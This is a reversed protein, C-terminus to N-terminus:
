PKTAPKDTIEFEVPETTIPGAWYRVAPKPDNGANASQDMKVVLLYKGPKLPHQKGDSMKVQEQYANTLIRAVGTLDTEELVIPVTLVKGPDLQVARLELTGAQDFGFEGWNEQGQKKFRLQWDRYNSANLLNFPKDSVNKLEVTFKLPEDAAFTAKPLTVTVQLGDKEFPKSSVPPKDTIEITLEKTTAKGVWDSTDKEEVGLGTGVPVERRVKPGSQTKDYTMSLTYRGPKLGNCSWVGGAGDSGTLCFQGPKDAMPQLQATRDVIDSQNQALLMPPCPSTANRRDGIPMVNGASDKLSINITDFLNLVLGVANGTQNTIKLKLPITTEKKEAPTLWVEPTVVQFDLGNVRVAETEKLAPQTASQTAPADAWAFGQILLLLCILLTIKNM